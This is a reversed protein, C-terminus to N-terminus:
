QKPKSKAAAVPPPPSQAQGAAPADGDHAGRAAGGMADDIAQMLQAAAASVPALLQARTTADLKARAGARVRRNMEDETIRGRYLDRYDLPSVELAYAMATLIAEGVDKEGSQVRRLTPMSIGSRRSIESTSIKM